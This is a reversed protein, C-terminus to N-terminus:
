PSGAIYTAEGIDKIGLSFLIQAAELGVLNIHMCKHRHLGFLWLSNM